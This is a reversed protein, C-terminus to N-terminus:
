TYRTSQQSPGRKPFMTTGVKYHSALVRIENFHGTGNKNKTSTNPECMHYQADSGICFELIASSLYIFLAWFLKCSTCNEM